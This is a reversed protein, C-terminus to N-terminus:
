NEYWFIHYIANNKVLVLALQMERDGKEPSSYDHFYWDITRLLTKTKKSSIYDSVDDVGDVVKVEVFLWTTDNQMILDLEWGRIQYNKQLLFFGQDTFYQSVLNEWAYWKEKKSLLM